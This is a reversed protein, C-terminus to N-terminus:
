ESKVSNAYISKQQFWVTNNLIYNTNCKNETSMMWTMKDFEQILFINTNKMVKSFSKSMGSSWQHVMKNNLILLSYYANFNSSLM